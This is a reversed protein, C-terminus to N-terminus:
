PTSPAVYLREIFDRARTFGGNDFIDTHGIGSPWFGEKPQNASEFLRRGLSQPIVYDADGHMVLLPAKVAAIRSLSDYRDLMLWGVPVIPFRWAAVDVTSTYPAELVVVAVDRESALKTAVGSGLSQGYLAIQKDAVGQGNLWDLAARGDLYLGEETPAGDSGAYGRYATMLVGMGAEKFYKLRYRQSRLSGGNGHFLVVTPRGEPAPWYWAVVNLGDATKLEVEQVGALMAYHSPPVRRIQDPFYMMDRQYVYMLGVIALYVMVVGILARQILRM